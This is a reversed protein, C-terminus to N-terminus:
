AEIQSIMAIAAIEDIILHTFFGGRAGAVLSQAKDAGAAVAVVVPVKKLVSLDVTLVRDTLINPCIEGKDNVRTGCIDAGMGSEVLQRSEDLTIYGSSYSISKEPMSSGLGIFALSMQDFRAVHEAIQKEHLLLTKLTKNKVIYPVQYVSWSSGARQALTQVIERGDMFAQNKASDSCVNGSLQIFTTNEMRKTLSFYHVMQQITTGWSFGVVMGSKLNDALYQAAAKGVNAKSEELTSGPMTLIVQKLGFYDELRKELKKYHSLQNNIHFEVIKMMKCKKLARSIKYRSVGYMIAIEDQSMDALYYLTAINALTERTDQYKM